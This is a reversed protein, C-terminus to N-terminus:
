LRRRGGGALNLVVLVLAVVLLINVLSGVQALLLVLWVVLLAAILTWLM